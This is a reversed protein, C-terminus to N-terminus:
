FDSSEPEQGDAENLLHGWRDDSREKLKWPHLGQTIGLGRAPHYSDLEDYRM